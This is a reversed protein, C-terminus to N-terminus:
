DEFHKYIPRPEYLNQTGKTNTFGIDQLIGITKQLNEVGKQVSNLDINKVTNFLDKFSTTASTSTTRLSSAATSPTIYTNWINSSEGYIEYIEYLKQWTTNNKLVSTALEPHKRAFAKFTEKSM